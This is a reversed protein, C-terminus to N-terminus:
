FSIPKVETWSMYKDHTHKTRNYVMDFAALDRFFGLTPHFVRSRRTNRGVEQTSWGSELHKVVVTDDAHEISEYPM